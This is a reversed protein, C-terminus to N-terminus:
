AAAKAKAKPKAKPLLSKVSIAAKKYAAIASELPESVARLSDGGSGAAVAAQCFVFLNLKIFGCM